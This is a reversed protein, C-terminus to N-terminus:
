EEEWPTDLVRKVESYSFGRRALYGILRRLEGPDTPVGNPCRKQVTQRLLADEDHGEEIAVEEWVDLAEQRDVGKEYLDSLIRQKSKSSLHSRIYNEAVRRDDIYGFSRCYEIAARAEEESFGAKRVKELLDAETRDARELYLLAKRKAEKLREESSLDQNGGAKGSKM